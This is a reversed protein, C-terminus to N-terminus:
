GSFTLTLMCFPFLMKINTKVYNRKLHVRQWLRNALLMYLPRRLCSSPNWSFQKVEKTTNYADPKESLLQLSGPQLWCAPSFRSVFHPQLCTAKYDISAQLVKKKEVLISYRWSQHICTISLFYIKQPIKLEKEGKLFVAKFHAACLQKLHKPIQCWLAPVTRSQAM